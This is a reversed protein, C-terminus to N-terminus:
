GGWSELLAPVDLLSTVIRDPVVASGPKLGHGEVDHWIAYIGLGQPTAIDWELDDGVMWSERPSADLHSLATLYARRDPKGYGAEGEIQIHDFYADLGFREIKLRQVQAKGNTVLAMPVRQRRLADLAEIANPLLTMREHRYSEYRGAIREALHADVDGALVSLASRVVGSRAELPQLRWHRRREPDTLYARAKETIAGSLTEADLGGLEPGFETVIEQWAARPDRYVSLITDDLDFLIAGPRMSPM